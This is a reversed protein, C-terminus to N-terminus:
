AVYWAYLTLGTVATYTINVYGVNGSTQKFRAAAADFVVRRVGTAPQTLVLNNDNGQDSPSVSDFTITAGTGTSVWWLTVKSGVLAISDGGINPTIPTPTEGAVTGGFANGIATAQDPTYSAM